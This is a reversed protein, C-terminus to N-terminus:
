VGRVFRVRYPDLQAAVSLLDPPITDTSISGLGATTDGMTIALGDASWSKVAGGVVAGADGGTANWRGYFARMVADLLDPPWCDQPYGGTYTVVIVPENACCNHPVRFGCGRGLDLVGQASYVRWGTLAEGGDIIVSAVDTIPFLTLFLKSDRSDIPEIRQERTREVIGRGLYGEILTLTAKMTATLAADKSADAIGLTEKIQELTPFTACAIDLLPNPTSMRRHERERRRATTAQVIRGSPRAPRDRRGRWGQRAQRALQWCAAGKDTGPRAGFNPSRALWMSGECTLMDGPLYDRECDWIGAYQMPRFNLPIKKELGSAFKFVLALYGREDPEVFSPECGDLMLTYGSCAAGPEVDSDANAFWLGGKHQVCTGATVRWGAKWHLASSFGGDKGPPGAPGKRRDLLATAVAQATEHSLERRVEAYHKALGDDFEARMRNLEERMATLVTEDFRRFEAIRTEHAQMTATTAESVIRREHEIIAAHAAPAVAAELNKQM